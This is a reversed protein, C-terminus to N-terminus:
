ALLQGYSITHFCIGNIFKAFLVLHTTVFKNLPTWTKDLVQLKM